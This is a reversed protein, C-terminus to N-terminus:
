ALTMIDEQVIQVLVCLTASFQHLHAHPANTELLVLYALTYANLADIQLQISIIVMLAHVEAHAM